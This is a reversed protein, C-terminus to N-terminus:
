IGPTISITNYCLCLPTATLASYGVALCTISFQSEIIQGLGDYSNTLWFWGLGIIFVGSFADGALDTTVFTKGLLFFRIDRGGDM